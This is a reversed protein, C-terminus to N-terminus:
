RFHKPQNFFREVKQGLQYKERDHPLRETRNARAPIVAEIGRHAPQTADTDCAQDM